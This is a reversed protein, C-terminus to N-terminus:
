LKELKPNDDNNLIKTNYVNKKKYSLTIFKQTNSNKKNSTNFLKKNLKLM